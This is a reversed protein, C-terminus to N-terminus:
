QSEQEHHTACGPQYSRWNVEVQDRHEFGSLANDFRHKAIYCWPCVMDSWIEM